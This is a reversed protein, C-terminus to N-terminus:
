LSKRTEVQLYVLSIDFVLIIDLIWLCYNKTIACHKQQKSEWSNHM